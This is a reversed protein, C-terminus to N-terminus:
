NDNNKGARASFINRGPTKVSSMGNRPSFFNSSHVTDKENASFVRSVVKGDKYIAVVNNSEVLPSALAVQKKQFNGTKPRITM